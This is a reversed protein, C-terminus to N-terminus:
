QDYWTKKWANMQEIEKAQDKIINDALTKIEQRQTTALIKNAMDIAGEHHTVMANIFRLDFEADAEGLDKMMSMSNGAMSTQVQETDNYWDKKWMYMMDIEKEQATIINSALQTIENRESKTQAEKAMTIAGMHHEIMNNIFEKDVESSSATTNDNAAESGSTAQGSSSDMTNFYYFGTALAVIFIIVILVINNKM